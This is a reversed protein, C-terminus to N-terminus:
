SNLGRKRSNKAQSSLRIADHERELMTVKERLSQVSRVVDGQAGHSTEESVRSSVSESYTDETNDPKNTDKTLRTSIPNEPRTTAEEPKATPTPAPQDDPKKVFLDSKKEDFLPPQIHWGRRTCADCSFHKQPEPVTSAVCYLPNHPSGSKRWAHYIIQQESMTLSTGPAAYTSIRYGAIVPYKSTEMTSTRRRKNQSDSSEAM